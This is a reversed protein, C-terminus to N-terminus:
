RRATPNVLPFFRDACAARASRVAVDGAATWTGVRGWVACLCSWARGRSVVGRVFSLSLSLSLLPPFFFVRPFFGGFGLPGQRFGLLLSSRLLPLPSSLPSFLLCLVCCLCLLPSLLLALLPRLLLLPSLPSPCALPLSLFCCCCFFSSSCSFVLGLSGFSLCGFSLPSSLPSSIPSLVTGHSPCPPVPARSLPSVTAAGM